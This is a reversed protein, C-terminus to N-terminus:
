VKKGGSVVQACDGGAFEVEIVLVKEIVFKKNVISYDVPYYVAVLGSELQLLLVALENGVAFRRSQTSLVRSSKRGAEEGGM